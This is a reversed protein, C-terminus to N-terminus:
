EEELNIIEAKGIGDHQELWTYANAYNTWSDASDVNLTWTLDEGDIECDSNVVYMSEGNSLEMAIAFTGTSYYKKIRAITEGLIKEQMYLPHSSGYEREQKGKVEKLMQNVVKLSGEQETM